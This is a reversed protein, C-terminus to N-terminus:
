RYVNRDMDACGKNKLSLVSGGESCRHKNRYTVKHRNNLWYGASFVGWGWGVQPQGQDVTVATIVIIGDQNTYQGWGTGLKHIARLRYLYGKTILTYIAYFRLSSQQTLPSGRVWHYIIYFIHIIFLEM